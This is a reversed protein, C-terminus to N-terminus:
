AVFSKQQPSIVSYFAQELQQVPLQWGVNAVSFRAKQGMCKLQEIPPLQQLAQLFAQPQALEILVGSVNPQIHQQACAYNYAWVPLGSAMAELVVNGFTEVQSAFVFADASAYVHSLDRGTLAGTFIVDHGAARQELRTRDPGDGVIVLQVSSDHARLQVYAQIILDVEKEPSLRGVYLLVRSSSTAGWQQRLRHCRHKPHFHETDVGRGVVQLDCHIGLERLARETDQSPVCTLQTQNHFWTLYRQIPKILFTLNFFRSFDHFPSHFGSSVAYHRAKAAYLACLGLPGETVIHVIDPSFNDLAQGVKVYQPWGFQLTEYKPIAQPRVLCEQDPKFEACKYHQNPRILLIRHGNAQLGKCLHMLSLAVGNIEPPWTETVIAIKLRPRLLQECTNDHQKQQKGHNQKFQYKFANLIDKHAHPLQKLFHLGTHTSLQTTPITKQMTEQIAKQM